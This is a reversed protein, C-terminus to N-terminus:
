EGTNLQLPNGKYIERYFREEEQWVPNKAAGRAGSKNPEPSSFDFRTHPRPRPLGPDAILDRM